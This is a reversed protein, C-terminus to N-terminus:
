FAADGNKTCVLKDNEEGVAHPCQRNQLQLRIHHVLIDTAAKSVASGMNPIVVDAHRRYPEVWSEYSPKVFRMYMDIVGHPDRGREAIDRRMRRALRIDADCDVFIRLDFMDRLEKDSFILIGELIVVNRSPVIETRSPHRSHTSFDYIPIEANEWNALKKIALKMTEFDIAAPSDFDYKSAYAAEKQATSLVKYFSDCSIISIEETTLAAKLIECVTTKGSASGGCVGILFPRDQNHRLMPSVPSM